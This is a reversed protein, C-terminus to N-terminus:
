DAISGRGPGAHSGYPERRGGQATGCSQVVAGLLGLFGHEGDAMPLILLSGGEGWLGGFQVFLGCGVCVM